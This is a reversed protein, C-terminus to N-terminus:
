FWLAANRGLKLTVASLGSINSANPDSAAINAKGTGRSFGQSLCVSQLCLLLCRNPGPHPTPEQGVKSFAWPIFLPCPPPNPGRYDQDVVLVVTFPPVELFPLTPGATAPPMHTAGQHGRRVGPTDTWTTLLSVEAFRGM